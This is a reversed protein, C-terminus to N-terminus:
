RLSLQMVRDALRHQPLASPVPVPASLPKMAHFHASILRALSEPTLDVERILTGTGAEVLVSANLEQHNATAYRYPILICPKKLMQLEVVTTAGSRCIVLDATSYAMEMSHLYPLVAGPIDNTEYESKIREFDKTGALHLFQIKDKISSLHAVAACLTTNIVSAGQSGGFVLITFRDVALHLQQYQEPSRPVFIEERVPNGTVITKHEPFNKKAIEFSVAIEQVFPILMRNALGPVCNQEHILAPIGCLRGIVISPFSLYGGMGVVVAPKLESLLRRVVVISKLLLLVFAFLKFSITRPMGCLPIERYAYHERELVERGADNKRIFFVPEINHKKLERALALGPYLHGGTGGAAIIVKKNQTM